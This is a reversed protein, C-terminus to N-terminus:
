TSIQLKQRNTINRIYKKMRTLLSDPIEVFAIKKFVLDDSLVYQGQIIVSKYQKFICSNERYHLTEKIAPLPTTFLNEWNNKKFRYVTIIFNSIDSGVTTIDTSIYDNDQNTAFFGRLITM